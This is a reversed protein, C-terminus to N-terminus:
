KNPSEYADKGWVEVAKPTRLSFSSLLYRCNYVVFHGGEKTVLRALNCCLVTAHGEFVDCYGSSRVCRVPVGDFHPVM